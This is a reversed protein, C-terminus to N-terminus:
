GPLELIVDGLNKNQLVEHKTALIGLNSLGLQGM